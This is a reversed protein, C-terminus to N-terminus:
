RRDGVGVGDPSAQVAIRRRVAGSAVDVEAAEGGGLTVWATRGDPAFAVGRPEALPVAAATTRTARDVLLLQGGKGDVIAVRAGDPSVALRYPFAAGTFTHVPAGTAIVTVAGTANSGVWVEAGDPTVAIGEPEAPVAITRVFAGRALDLESVSNDRVNATWARRGDGSVAVMHSTRAQTPVATVADTALDVVLVAGAAESTVAIRDSRGALFHVGHPRLYRGLDITRAVTDRVLDVVALRNGPTRDGYITVVATRGDPSVQAEHPGTGVALHVPTAGDARLVSVSGSEQNAVVVERVGAGGRSAPSPAAPTAPTGPHCAALLALTPVLAHRM